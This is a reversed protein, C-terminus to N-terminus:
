YLRFGKRHWRVVTDPKVIALAQKWRPWFRFLAVWSIRDLPTLKLKLKKQSYTALQQRLAFEIIAQETRSRFFAPVCRLTLILFHLLPRM